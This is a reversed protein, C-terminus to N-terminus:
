FRLVLGVGTALDETRRNLGHGIHWDLQCCRGLPLLLGYNMFHKSGEDVKDHFLLGYWEIFAAFGWPHWAQGYFSQRWELFTDPAPTREGLLALVDRLEGIAPSFGAIERRPAVGTGGGLEFCDSWQWRYLFAASPFVHDNSFPGGLPIGLGGLLATEPCGDAAHTLRLKFGIELDRFGQEIDRALTSPIGAPEGRVRAGEHVWGEAGFRLELHETFGHRIRLEPVVVRNLITNARRDFTYTSGFEYHTFGAEVPSSSPMLRPRDSRFCFTCPVICTRPSWDLRAHRSYSPGYAHAEPPSPIPTGLRAVEPAPTEQAALTGLCLPLVFLCRGISRRM